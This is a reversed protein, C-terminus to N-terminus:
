EKVLLVGKMGAYYHGPFSCIYEYGGPEEPVTFIVEVTEDGGALDTAAIVKDQMDPALYDNEIARASANVYAEVDADQKLVVVNHAMAQKPIRSVTTLRIRITEGPQAEIETVDFLMQDTGVMEITRVDTTDQAFVGSTVFLLTLLPLFTQKFLHQIIM